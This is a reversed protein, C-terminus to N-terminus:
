IELAAGGDDDGVADEREEIEVADDNQFIPLDDLGSGVGFEEGEVAIIGEEEFLLLPFLFNTRSLQYCKPGVFGKAFKTM